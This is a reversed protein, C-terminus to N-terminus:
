KEEGYVAMGGGMYEHRPAQVHSCCSSRTWTWTSSALDYIQRM